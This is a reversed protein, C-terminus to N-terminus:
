KIKNKIGKKVKRKIIKKIKPSIICLLIIIIFIIIIIRYDVTRYNKWIGIKDQKAKLESKKLTNTYKYDDYLYAVEGFGKKIIENQLLKDDVFIWGLYRNYKDKKDSNNDFEIIIKEANTLMNCTFQSAEIGYEEIENTSEPTDIALFRVKIIEIQYKFSATDGDICKNLTVTIKKDKINLANANVINFILIILIIIKKM